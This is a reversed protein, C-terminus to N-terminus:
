GFGLGLRELLSPEPDGLEAFTHIAEIAEEVEIPGHYHQLEGDADTTPVDACLQMGNPAEEWIFQLIRGDFTTGLFHGDEPTLLRLALEITELTVPVDDAVNWDKAYDCLFLELDADAESAPTPETELANIVERHLDPREDDLGRLIVAALEPGVPTKLGALLAVMDPVCATGVVFHNRLEPLTELLESTYDDSWLNRLARWARDVTSQEWRNCPSAYEHALMELIEPIADTADHTELLQLAFEKDQEDPDGLAELAREIEEEPSLQKEYLEKM